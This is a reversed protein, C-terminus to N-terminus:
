EFGSSYVDIHELGMKRAYLEAIRARGGFFTCVFLVRVKDMQVGFNLIRFVIYEFYDSIFISSHVYRRFFHLGLTMM